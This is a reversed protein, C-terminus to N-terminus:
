FRGHGTLADFDATSQPSVTEATVHGYREVAQNARALLITSERVSSADWKMYYDDGLSFATAPIGVAQQVSLAISPHCRVAVELKTIM